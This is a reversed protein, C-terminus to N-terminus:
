FMEIGNLSNKNALSFDAISGLNAHLNRGEM